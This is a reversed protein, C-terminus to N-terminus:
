DVRSVELVSTIDSERLSLMIAESFVSFIAAFTFPMGLTGRAKGWTFLKVYLMPALLNSISRWNMKYAEMQGKGMGKKVGMDTMITEIGDRKRQGPMMVIQATRLSALSNARSWLSFGLISFVQCFHTHGLRGLFRVSFKGCPVSFFGSLAMFTLQTAVGKDNLQLKERGVLTATDEMLRADILTQLWSVCSLTALGRGNTFLRYFALPNCSSADLSSPSMRQSPPLTERILKLVVICLGALVTTLRFSNKVSLKSALMPASITAVGAPFMSIFGNEAMNRGSMVDAMMARMAAFFATDLAIVPIRLFHVWLSQPNLAIVANSILLAIPALQMVFKRGYIDSLRGFSPGVIFELLAGLASIYGMTNAAAVTDGSYISVFSKVRANVTLGHCLSKFVLVSSIGYLVPKYIEADDLRVPKGDDVNEKSSTRAIGLLHLM